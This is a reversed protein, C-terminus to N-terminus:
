AVLLKAHCLSSYHGVCIQGLNYVWGILSSTKEDLWDEKFERQCSALILNKKIRGMLIPFGLYKDIQQTHNFEFINEFRTIKRRPVNKSALFKYKSVNIKFGVTLCFADLVQKYIRAIEYTAKIFLLCDDVFFLHSVKPGNRSVSISQWQNSSVKSHILLGLKQMCLVFLYSSM